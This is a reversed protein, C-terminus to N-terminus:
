FVYKIAASKGLRDGNKTEKDEHIHNKEIIYKTEWIIKTIERKWGAVLM